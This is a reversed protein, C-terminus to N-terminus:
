RDGAASCNIQGPESCPITPRSAPVGPIVESLEPDDEVDSRRAAIGNDRSNKAKKRATEYEARTMCRTAPTPVEAYGICDDPFLDSDSLVFEALSGAFDRATLQSACGPLACAIVLLFLRKAMLQPRDGPFVLVLRGMTSVIRRAESSAHKPAGACETIHVTSALVM